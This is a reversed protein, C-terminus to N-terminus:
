EVYGLARLREIADADARPAIKPSAIRHGDRTPDPAGVLYPDSKWAELVRVPLGVGPPPIPMPSSERPDTQLDYFRTEITLGAPRAFQQMVKRGSWMVGKWHSTGNTAEAEIVRGPSPRPGRYWSAGEIGAGGRAGAFDLITPVVDVGTVPGREVTRSVGPGRVLFPVRIVEEYVQHGHRFWEEHDLLSEGHDSTLIVLADQLGRTADLGSLLRGVAHDVYRIEDDYRDVYDLGDTVNADLVYDPVDAATVPREGSHRYLRPWDDPPLYPGHPDIYHVWLFLPRDPGRDGLVWALAANTTRSAKREYVVRNPEREDVFDDFHDFRDAIGIAEDTLVINSVFAATEYEDSLLESVLPVDPGLLQYFQRVQHTRPSSGSLLTVVSPPTSAAASVSREVVLGNSFWRDICPTTGRPYGYAGLHDSRLTDITIL